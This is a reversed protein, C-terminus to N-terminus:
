TPLCSGASMVNIDARRNLAAAEPMYEGSAGTDKFLRRVIMVQLSKWPRVEIEFQGRKETWKDEVRGNILGQVYIGRNKFLEENEKNSGKSSAYARIVLKVRDDDAQICQALSDVLNNVLMFQSDKEELAAKKDGFTVYATFLSSGQELEIPPLSGNVSLNLQRGSASGSTAAYYTFGLGMAAVGVQVFIRPLTKAVADVIYDWATPLTEMLGRLVALITAAGFTLGAPPLARILDQSLIPITLGVLIAVSVVTLALVTRSGLKVWRWLLEKAIASWARGIPEANMLLKRNKNNTSTLYGCYFQRSDRKEGVQLGTKKLEAPHRFPSKAPAQHAIHALQDARFSKKDCPMRM